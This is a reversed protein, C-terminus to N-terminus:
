NEKVSYNEDISQNPLAKRELMMAVSLPKSLRSLLTVRVRHITTTSHSTFPDHHHPYCLMPWSVGQHCSSQQTQRLPPYHHSSTCHRKMLRGLSPPLMVHNGHHYM